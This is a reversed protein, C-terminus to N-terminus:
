PVQPAMFFIASLIVGLVILTGIRVAALSMWRNKDDAGLQARLRMGQHVSSIGLVASVAWLSISVTFGFWFHALFILIGATSIIFPMAERRM